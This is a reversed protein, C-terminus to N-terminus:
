NKKLGQTWRDIYPAAMKQLSRSLAINEELGERGEEEHPM